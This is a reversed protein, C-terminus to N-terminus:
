RYTGFNSFFQSSMVGPNSYPSIVPFATTPTLTLYPNYFGYGGYFRSNFLVQDAPSLSGTSQYPSFNYPYPNVPGWYNQFQQPATLQSVIGWGIGQLGDIFAERSPDRADPVEIYKTEATPKPAPDNPTKPPSDYFSCIEVEKEAPEECEEEISTEENEKPKPSVISLGLIDSALSMATPAIGSAPLEECAQVEVESEKREVSACGMSALKEIAFNRFKMDRANAAGIKERLGNIILLENQLSALKDNLMNLSSCNTLEDGSNALVLTSKVGSGGNTSPNLCESVDNFEQLYDFSSKLGPTMDTILKSANNKNEKITDKKDNMAAWCVSASEFNRLSQNCAAQQEPSIQIGAAKAESWVFSVKSGTEVQLRAKLDEAVFAFKQLSNHIELGSKGSNLVKMFPLAAVDDFDPLNKIHNLEDRTLNLTGGTYKPIARELDKSIQNFSWDGGGRKKIALAKKWSEIEDGTLESKSLVVNIENLSDADVKFDSSCADKANQEREKFSTCLKKLEQSLKEPTKRNAEDIGKLQQLLSNEEGTQLLLEFARATALAKQFEAGARQAKTLNNDGAKEKNSRISNKLIQFGGLLNIKNEITRVREEMAALPACRLAELTKEKVDKTPSIDTINIDPLTEKACEGNPLAKSLMLKEYYAAINQMRNCNPGAAFATPTALFILLLLSKM